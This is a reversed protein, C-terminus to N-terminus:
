YRLHDKYSLSIVSTTSKQVSLNARTALYELCSSPRDSLESLGHDHVLSVLGSFVVDGAGTIDVIKDSEICNQLTLGSEHNILAMGDESLTVLINRINFRRMISLINDLNSCLDGHPEQGLEIGYEAFLMNFEQKNPKLVSAGNYISLPGKKVDVLLIAYKATNMLFSPLDRDITGYNYDSMAVVYPHAEKYRSLIEARIFVQSDYINKKPGSDVRAVVHGNSDIFRTKVPTTTSGKSHTLRACTSATITQNQSTIFHLDADSCMLLNDRVFMAGGSNIMEEVADLVPVLAEQALRSSQVTVYRDIIADGILLISM